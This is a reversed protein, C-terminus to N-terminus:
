DTLRRSSRRRRRRASDVLIVFSMVGVGILMTTVLDSINSLSFAPGGDQGSRAGGDDSVLSALSTSRWLAGLGVLAAVVAAVVLLRLVYRGPRRTVSNATRRASAHGVMGM